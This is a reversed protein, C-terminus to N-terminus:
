RAIPSALRDRLRWLTHSLGRWVGNAPYGLRALRDSMLLQALLRSTAPLEQRWRGCGNTDFPRADNDTTTWAGDIPLGMESASIQEPRLAAAPPELDLFSYLARVTTEPESVLEEYRLGHYRPALYADNIMSFHVDTARCWRACVRHTKFTAQNYDTVGQEQLRHLVNRLSALVDRGDRIVHVFRSDPFLRLLDHAAFINSPTKESLLTAGPKGALAEDFFGAYFQVFHEALKADNFHRSLRRAYHSPYEAAMRSYLAVIERTFIFEAGGAVTAHALLLKQVLSTGSRECGGVFIFRM